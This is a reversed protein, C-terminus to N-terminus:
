SFFFFFLFPITFVSVESTASSPASGFLTPTPGTPPKAGFPTGFSMPPPTKSDGTAAAPAGFSFTSQKKESEAAPPPAGFLSPVKTEGALAQSPASTTTAPKFGFLSPVAPAPTSKPAGGPKATECCPCKDHNNDNMVACTPCKWKNSNDPLKFGSAGWSVAPKEAPKEPEKEAPKEAAPAATSAAPPASAPAGFAFLSPVAPVKPASGTTTTSSSSSPPAGFSFAPPVSLGTTSPTATPPTGFSSSFLAPVALPKQEAPKAGPKDTECCPCKSKENENMVACTPCKWKNSNDPAKFGAAAWTLTPAPKKEQPEQAKNADAKKEEEKAAENGKDKDADSKESGILPATAATSSAGSTRALYSSTFLAPPAAPSDSAPAKTGPKCEECAACKDLKNDNM